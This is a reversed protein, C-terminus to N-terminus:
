RGLINGLLAAGSILRSSGLNAGLVPLHPAPYSNLAVRNINVHKLTGKWISSHSIEGANKGVDIIQFRIDSASFRTKYGSRFKNAYLLYTEMNRLYSGVSYFWDVVFSYPMLEWAISVPNLSSWRALDFQDTRLDCGYTVSVKVPSGKVIPFAVPGVVTNISATTPYWNESARARYRQTKNIVVRLNEDAIGYLTQLTPKFGYTYSLWAKSAARIPGFRKVFTKSLDIIQDQLKLMKLTKGSEALDISVDLDGRVKDTLRNLAQNELSTWDYAPSLTVGNITASLGPGSAYEHTGNTYNYAADHRLSIQQANFDYSHIPKPNV